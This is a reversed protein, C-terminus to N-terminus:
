QTPLTVHTRILPQYLETNIIIDAEKKNSIHYNDQFHQLPRRAQQGNPIIKTVHKPIDCGYM